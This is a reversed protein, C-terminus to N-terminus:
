DPLVDITRTNVPPQPEEADEIPITRVQTEPIPLALDVHLL